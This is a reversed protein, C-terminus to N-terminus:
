HRSPEQFASPQDIRHVSAIASEVDQDVRAAVAIDNQKAQGASDLSNGNEM